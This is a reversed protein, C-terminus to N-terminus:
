EISIVASSLLPGQSPNMKGGRGILVKRGEKLKSKGGGEEERWVTGEEEEAGNEEVKRGVAQLAVDDVLM